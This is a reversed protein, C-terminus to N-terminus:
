SKKHSISFNNQIELVFFDKESVHIQFPNKFDSILVTSIMCYSVNIKILSTLKQYWINKEAHKSRLINKFILYVFKQYWFIIKNKYWSNVNRIESDLIMM